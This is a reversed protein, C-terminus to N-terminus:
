IVYHTLSHVYNVYSDSVVGIGNKNFRFQSLIILRLQPGLVDYVVSLHDHKIENAHVRGLQSTCSVPFFEFHFYIDRGPISGAIGRKEHGEPFPKGVSLRCELPCM